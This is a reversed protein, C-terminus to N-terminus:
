CGDPHQLVRMIIRLHTRLVPLSERADLIVKPNHGDRIEDQAEAIDLQHDERECPVYACALEDRDVTRWLTLVRRQGPPKPVAFGVQRGTRRAAAYEESHDRVMHRGVDRVAKEPARNMALRGGAVEFLDGQPSETLYTRDQANLRAGTRDPAAGAQPAAGAGLGVLTAVAATSAALKRADM